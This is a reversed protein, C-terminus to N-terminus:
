PDARDRAISRLVVDAELVAGPPVRGEVGEEGYGLHPGIRLRRRGGTQMGEVGYELGAIVQRSGIRFRVEQEAGIAEGRNLALAVVIEVTDGRCARPGEGTVLDEFLIGGRGRKV